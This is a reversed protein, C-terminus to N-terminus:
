QSRGRVEQLTRFCRVRDISAGSIGSLGLTDTATKFVKAAAPYDFNWIKEELNGAKILAPLLKNVWQLWRQDM